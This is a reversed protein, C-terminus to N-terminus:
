RNGTGKASWWVKSGHHEGEEWVEHTAKGVIANPWSWNEITGVIDRKGFPPAVSEENRNDINDDPESNSPNPPLENAQPLPAPRWFKGVGVRTIESKKNVRLHLKGVKINIKMKSQM